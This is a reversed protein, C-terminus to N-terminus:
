FFQAFPEDQSCTRRGIPVGSPSPIRLRSIGQEPLPLVLPLQGLGIKRLTLPLHLLTRATEARIDRVFHANRVFIGDCLLAVLEGNDRTALLLYSRNRNTESM